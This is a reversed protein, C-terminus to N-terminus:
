FTRLSQDNKTVIKQLGFGFSSIESCDLSASASAGKENQFIDIKTEQPHKFCKFKFESDGQCEESKRIDSALRPYTCNGELIWDEYACM